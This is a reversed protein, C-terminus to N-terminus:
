IMRHGKVVTDTHLEKGETRIATRIIISLKVHDAATLHENSGNIIYDYSM